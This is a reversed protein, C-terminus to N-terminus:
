SHRSDISWRDDVLLLQQMSQMEVLPSSHSNPPHVHLVMYDRITLIDDVAFGGVSVDVTCRVNGEWELVEAGDPGPNRPPLAYLEGEGIPTTKRVQSGYSNAHINRMLQVRVINSNATAATNQAYLTRLSALPGALRIHFPIASSVGFIRTSPIYFHCQIPQIGSNYRTKMTSKVEHWASPMSNESESFAIDLPLVPRPPLMEPRYDLDVTFSRKRKLVGLRPAKFATVTFTYKCVAFCEPLLIECSPPLTLEKDIRGRYTPPLKMEFYHHAPCPTPTSGSPFPPWINRKFTFFETSAPRRVGGLAMELQGELKIDISVIGAPNSIFLEGKIMGHRGYSPVSVGDAQEKLTLQFHEDTRTYTGTPVTREPPLTRELIREDFALEASYQPAESTNTVDGPLM